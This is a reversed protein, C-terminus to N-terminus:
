FTALIMKLHMNIEKAGYRLTSTPKNSCRRDNTAAILDTVMYDYM